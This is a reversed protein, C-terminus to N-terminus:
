DKIVAKKELIKELNAVKKFLEPLKRLLVDIKRAQLLPMV